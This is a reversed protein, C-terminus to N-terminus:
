RREAPNGHTHLFRAMKARLEKADPVPGVAGATDFLNRQIETPLQDWRLVVAAGLCRLIHEEEQALSAVTQETMEPGMSQNVEFQVRCHTFGIELVQGFAHTQESNVCAIRSKSTGCRLNPLLKPRCKTTM